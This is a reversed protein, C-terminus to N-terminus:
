SAPRVSAQLEVVVQQPDATDVRIDRYVGYSELGQEDLAVDLTRWTDAVGEAPGRYTVSAGQPEAPLDTLDLGNTEPQTAGVAIGVSVDIKSGDPRGVYTHVRQGEIQLADLQETLAVVAGGIESEDNVEAHLHLLRLAPLPGLKLTRNTM